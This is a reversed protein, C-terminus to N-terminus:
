VWIYHICILSPCQAWWFFLFTSILLDPVYARLFVVSFRGYIHSPMHINPSWLALMVCLHNHFESTTGHLLVEEGCEWLMLKLLSIAKMCVEWNPKVLIACHTNLHKRQSKTCGICDCKIQPICEQLSQM